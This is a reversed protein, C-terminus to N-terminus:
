RRKNEKEFTKNKIAKVNRVTYLVFSTLMILVCLGVSILSVTRSIGYWLLHLGMMAYLSATTLKGHWLASAVTNTRKVSLLGTVATCVEKFVLILLPYLMYRFRSILCFLMAMQTLKDAVPDFVKGFDSIMHFRRAIFGDVVDTIGSLILVFLTLYYAEQKVYLWMMLPILCLRFLSLANPVTLIKNKYSNEVSKEM